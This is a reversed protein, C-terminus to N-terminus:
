RHSYCLIKPRQLRIFGASLIYIESCCKDDQVYTYNSVAAVSVDDALIGEAIVPFAGLATTLLRKKWWFIVFPVDLKMKIAAPLQFIQGM